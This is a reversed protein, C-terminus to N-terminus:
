HHRRTHRHVPRHLHALGLRQLRAATVGRVVKECNSNVSDIKDAFVVDYGDGCAITDKTGDVGYITDNGTGGSITDAGSGGVIVDAGGDATINDMGGGGYITDNGAGGDINDNGDSSTEATSCYLATTAGKPCSGDGYLTDNGDGGNINDNGALGYVTDDGGYANILDPGTTGILTDNGSTGNITAAFAATAAVALVVTALVLPKGLSM